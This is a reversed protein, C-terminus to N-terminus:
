EASWGPLPTMPAYGGLPSPERWVAGSRTVLVVDEGNRGVISQPTLPQKGHPTDLIYTPIAFGTTTGRLARMIDLGKEIPVRLHATGAVIQPHYLYYPRVRIRILGECLARMSEVSDNVGSLLVAQNGVPIGESLLIDVAAAAEPTIEQVCNFHTNIWVPHHAALGRALDRTIRYPLTVPVRTGIRIISVHPIARLQEVLGLIQSDHAVLPDGGTLLVDRIAPHKAIYDLGARLIRPNFHLGKEQDRRKRFCYRCYVPCLQAVCFAVRDPYVHVVEPVPSHSVEALPDDLGLADATEALRPMAQRRIPCDPNKPEMLSAYYPTIGARFVPKLTEFASREDESLSLDGVNDSDEAIQHRIQWRWDCFQTEPVGFHGAGLSTIAPRAATRLHLPTPQQWTM